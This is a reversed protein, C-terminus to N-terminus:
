FRARLPASVSGVFGVGRMPRRLAGFPRLITWGSSYGAPSEDIPHEPLDDNLPPRRKTASAVDSRYIERHRFFSMRPGVELPADSTALAQEFAEPLRYRLASHLRQRNYYNDIFESHLRIYTIDAVWLQDLGTLTLRRSPELV